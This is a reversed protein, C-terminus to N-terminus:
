PAQRTPETGMVDRPTQGPVFSVDGKYNATLDGHAGDIMGTDLMAVWVGKGRSCDRAAPAKTQAVGAPITEAQTM